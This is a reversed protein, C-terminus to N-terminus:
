QETTNNTGHAPLAGELALDSLIPREPGELLFADEAEQAGGVHHAPAEAVDDLRM